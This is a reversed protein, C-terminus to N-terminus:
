QCDAIWLNISTGLRIKTEPLPSQRLITGIPVQKNLVHHIIKTHIGYELLVLDAEELLMNLVNPVEIMRQGLGAGVIIDIAEGQNIPKGAAIPKGNHWQELVAYKTIDPVYKVTGLKLGKNSLLLQAQRMSGEILNPMSVSLPHEANLTVYIKRYEKVTAGKVPFQQLVSFPPLNAAYSTTDTVVYRLRYPALYDELEHIPVGMLDPVQVLKGQNTMRPLAMYFFVYLMAM